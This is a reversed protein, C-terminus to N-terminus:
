TNENDESPQSMAEVLATRLLDLGQGQMASVRVAQIKGYEDHEVAPQGDKLDIKNWVMLQPIREAGIEALVLNVAEIQAERMPHNVDVVHMLLDAHITEELTARFAAVLTHPLNRIFGVTDSVVVSHEADLFLKRSTTDLTAFLQDAAYIKAKTLANFLTSKGANTYGVISVSFEGRRVRAKRQTARQKQATALQERLRKVRIGILRRDTELQTEGPGRLGIGGKQRELHTWGRILRTQIHALQALEVQLKGEATRARQAFIDLILTTRDLVRCQIRRELNREQAPSLQHNFIVMEAGQARVVEAIEDVKGSGAFYAPDPRARKGEVVALPAVGASEVLQVFEDVGDQYDPENFDLCVLVAADGGKHREFM